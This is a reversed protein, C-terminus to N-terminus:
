GLLFDVGASVVSMWPPSVGERYQLAPRMPPYGSIAQVKGHIVDDDM